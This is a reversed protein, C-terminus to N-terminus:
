KTLNSSASDLLLWLCPVWYILWKIKLSLWGKEVEELAGNWIDSAVEAIDGSGAMSRGLLMKRSWRSSKMLQEPTMAPSNEEKEFLSSTGSTGVLPTGLVQLDLIGEDDVGADVCMERFLLFRKDKVLAARSPSMGDHLAQERAALDCARAEYYAMQKQRYSAMWECGKTLLQYIYVVRVACIWVRECFKLMFVFEENINM